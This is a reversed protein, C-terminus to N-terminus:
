TAYANIEVAVAEQELEKKITELETVVADIHEQLATDTCYAFVITTKEKILGVDPSFWFGLAPASTAGGFLNSFLAAVREVYPANDIEKDHITAPIYANVRSSLRMANQLKSNKLM